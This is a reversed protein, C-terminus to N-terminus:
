KRVKYGYRELKKLSIRTPKVFSVDRGKRMHKQFLFEECDFRSAFFKANSLELSGMPCPWKGRKMWASTHFLPHRDGKLFWVMKM